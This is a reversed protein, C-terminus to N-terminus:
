EPEVDPEPDSPALEDIIKPAANYKWILEGTKARLCYICGDDAGFYVREQHFVPAFRVPGEAFFEWRQEGSRTDFARVAGTRSSGIFMTQAAVIPEDVADFMM